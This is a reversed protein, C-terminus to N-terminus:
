CDSRRANQRQRRAARGRCGGRCEQSPWDQWLYIITSFHHIGVQWIAWLGAAKDNAEIRGRLLGDPGPTPSVKVIPRKANDIIGGVGVMDIQAWQAATAQDLDSLAVAIDQNAKKLEPSRELAMQILQELGLVRAEAVAPQVTGAVGLGYRGPSDRVNKRWDTVRKDGYASQSRTRTRSSRPPVIWTTRKEM